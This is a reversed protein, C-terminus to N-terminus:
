ACAGEGALTALVRDLAEVFRVNEDALGVSVRLFEPLGYNAVPRVIVGERLLGEYVANADVGRAAVRITLFNGWSPIYPIQRADCAARLYALGEDNLRRSEAVYTADDLAAGAAALAVANIASGCRRSDM